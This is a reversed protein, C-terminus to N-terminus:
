QKQNYAYLSQILNAARQRDAESIHENFIEIARAGNGELLASMLSAVIPITEEYFKQPLQAAVLSALGKAMPSMTSENIITVLDQRRIM